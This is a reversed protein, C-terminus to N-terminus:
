ETVVLEDIAVIRDGKTGIAEITLTHRGAAKWSISYLTVSARFSPQQLDVIKVEVGDVLVRAKGRTPGVPGFWAIRSGKFTISATAGDASAYSVAGGAYGGHEAAQWAGTYDITSSRESYRTAAATAEETGTDTGGAASGKFIAMVRTVYTTAAHSWATTRSSGTLWWYSVRRWSGLWRYLSRMKGRAVKEQNAVTPAANADGLYARAWSQWNSPMIQYRGFAGSTQNVAKHNGNSEVRATAIMFKELGPPDAALAPATGFGGIAGVALTAALAAAVAVRRRAQVQL